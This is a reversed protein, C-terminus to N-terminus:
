KLYTMKKIISKGNYNLKYFYIGSPLETADFNYKYEGQNLSNDELVKELYGRLNYVSLKINSKKDLTFEITTNVNFPNPYNQKLQFDKSIKEEEINTVEGFSYIFVKGYALEDPNDNYLLKGRQGIIICKDINDSLNKISSISCGFYSHQYDGDLRYDYLTDFDESGKYFLTTGAYLNNMNGYSMVLDNIGDNDFDINSAITSFGYNLNIGSFQCVPEHKNGSYMNVFATNSSKKSSSVVFDTIGDQDIDGLKAIYDGFGYETTDGHLTDITIMSTDPAGFVKYIKRSLDTCQVLVDDFGDYNIDGVGECTSGVFDYLEGKLCYDEINDMDHGGFYIRLYGYGQIVDNPEGIAIDDYGDGNFDGANSISTGFMHWWDSGHFILDPEADFDIGGFYLAVLGTVDNAEPASVVLDPIGDGNFDGTDMSRGFSYGEALILNAVTDLESGGFYINVYGGSNYSEWAGVAFDGYGDQNIDGLGCVESFADGPSEGHITAILNFGKEAQINQICILFLLLFYLQRKMNRWNLQLM